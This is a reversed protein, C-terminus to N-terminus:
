MFKKIPFIEDNILNNFLSPNNEIVSILAHKSVMKYLFRFFLSAGQGQKGALICNCWSFSCLTLQCSTSFHLKQKQQIQIFSIYLTTRLIQSPNHREVIINRGWSCCMMKNKYKENYKYDSKWKQGVAPIVDGTELPLQKWSCRIAM